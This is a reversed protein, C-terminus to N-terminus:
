SAQRHVTQSAVKGDSLHVVRSAAEAHAENHTAMVVTTGEGHLDLLMEMVADGNRSDLNGTPEDALILDPKAAIARAIAVRQQQGGSLQHPRDNRRHTLGLRELADDVLSQRRTPGLGLYRVAVGVNEAVTLDSILNFSQFVFGIRGRRLHARGNEGLGTIDKGAFRYMGSTPADLLGILSLLTSKGCGSPGMVAVFEGCDLELDIGDLAIAAGAGRGFAKGIGAMAVLPTKDGAGTKGTGTEGAGTEGTGTKETGTEGTGSDDAGSGASQHQTTDM